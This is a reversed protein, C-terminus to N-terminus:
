NGGKFSKIYVSSVNIDKKAELLERRADDRSTYIVGSYDEEYTDYEGNYDRVEISAVVKYLTM